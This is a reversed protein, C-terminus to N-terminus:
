CHKADDINQTMLMAIAVNYKIDPNQRYQM